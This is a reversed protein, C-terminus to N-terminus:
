KDLHSEAWDLIENDGRCNAGTNLTAWNLKKSGIRGGRTVNGM